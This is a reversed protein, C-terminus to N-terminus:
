RQLRMREREPIVSNDEELVANVANAIHRQLRDTDRVEQEFRSEIQKLLRDQVRGVLQRQEESISSTEPQQASRKLLPPLPAPTDSPLDQHGNTPRVRFRPM